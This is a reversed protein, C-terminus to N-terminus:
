ETAELKMNKVIPGFVKHMIELRRRLWEFQQPWLAENLFDANQRTYLRCMAKNETNHWTLAFGLANEIGEKQKELSAFEQKASPGDMYLEARIEPGKVGTESNWLSVISTLHVGSRGIAHNTWHQPLPKQCRIFSGEIEMYQKFATWFKLQLQKHASVEGGAAAAQQVTRSWDNPQSIINFKPAIPSDGIRWLEIELGFLNIKEDTRENLWDLTARHEETFREAIWVITVANLGAAYTLLQGLHSHDTRELQNEILVWNDTTTDKCLIDARFPGVEKEQSELELEIGIAEGLLKLNEEQALWPTFDSSESTWVERLEVKQLRGLTRTGM